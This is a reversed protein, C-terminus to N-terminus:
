ERLSTIKESIARVFAEWWPTERLPAAPAAWLPLDFSVGPPLSESRLYAPAEPARMGLATYATRQVSPLDNLLALEALLNQRELEVQELRQELRQIEGGVRVLSQTQQVWIMALVFVAAIAALALRLPSIAQPLSRFLQGRLPVRRLLPAERVAM